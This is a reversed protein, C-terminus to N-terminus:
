VVINLEYIILGFIIDDCIHRKLICKRARTLGGRDDSIYIPITLITFPKESKKKKKKDM